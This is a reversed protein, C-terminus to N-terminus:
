KPLNTACLEKLETIFIDTGGAPFGDWTHIVTGDAKLLLTLPFKGEPNYRDALTENQQQQERPLQNKRNRPFDANVLVLQRDATENFPGATFVEKKLRICPACWDSGSFNLLILRNETRAIEKAKPFDTIWDPKVSMTIWLGALLIAKM